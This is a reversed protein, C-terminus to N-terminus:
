SWVAETWTWMRKLTNELWSSRVGADLGGAIQVWKFKVVSWHGDGVHASTHTSAFYDPCSPWRAPSPWCWNSVCNEKGDSIHNSEATPSSQCSTSPPCFVQAYPFRIHCRAEYDAV